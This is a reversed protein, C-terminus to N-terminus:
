CWGNGAMLMKAILEAARPLVVFRTHRAMSIAKSPVERRMLVGEAQPSSSQRARRGGFQTHAGSSARSGSNSGTLIILYWGLDLLRLLPQSCVLSHSKDLAFEIKRISILYVFISVVCVCAGACVFVCVCSLVYVRCCM